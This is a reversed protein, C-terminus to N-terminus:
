SGGGGLEGAVISWCWSLAVGAVGGLVRIFLALMADFFIVDCYDSEMNATNDGEARRRAPHYSM